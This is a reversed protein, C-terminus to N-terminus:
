EFPQCPSTVSSADGTPDAQKRTKTARRWKQFPWTHGCVVIYTEEYNQMHEGGGKREREREYVCVRERERECV